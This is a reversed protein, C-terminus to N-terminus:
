KYKVIKIASRWLHKHHGLAGFIKTNPDIYTLTGIGIIKDKVYMGTKYVGDKDINESMKITKEKKDRSITFEINKSKNERIVSVMEEISNIEKDNVKIISDGVLFGSDRAIFEDNVKYFGVILVGNSHVEIGVNEGGPIIYDSYAFINSPVVLLLFTWLVLLKGKIKM